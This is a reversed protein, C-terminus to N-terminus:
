KRKEKAEIMVRYLDPEEKEWRNIKIIKTIENLVDQYNDFNNLSQGIVQNGQGQIKWSWKKNETQYIYFFYNDFM